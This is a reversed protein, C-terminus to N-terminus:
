MGALTFEPYYLSALVFAIYSVFLCLILMTATFKSERQSLRWKIESQEPCEANPNTSLTSFSM